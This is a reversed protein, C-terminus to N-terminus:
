KKKLHIFHTIKKLRKCPMAKSVAAHALEGNRYHRTAPLQIVSMRLAMTVFKELDEKSISM